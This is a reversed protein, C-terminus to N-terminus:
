GGGVLRRSQDRLAVFRLIHSRYTSLRGAKGVDAISRLALDVDFREAIERLLEVPPHPDFRKWVTTLRDVPTEDALKGM